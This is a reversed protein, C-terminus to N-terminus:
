ASCRSSSSRRATSCGSSRRGGGELPGVDGARGRLRDGRPEQARPAEARARRRRGVSLHHRRHRTGFGLPEALWPEIGFRELIATLQDGLAAGSFAGALIGVLTIGIQVTSLFRGPNEALALAAAAGSRGRRSWPGSASRGRRSSRSSPFPSSGTSPSSCWSSPSNSCRAFCPRDARPPRGEGLHVPSLCATM